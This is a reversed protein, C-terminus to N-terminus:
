DRAQLIITELHCATTLLTHHAVHHKIDLPMCQGTSTSACAHPWLFLCTLPRNPHDGGESEIMMVKVFGTDTATVCWTAQMVKEEASRAGKLIEESLVTMAGRGTSLPSAYALAEPTCGPLRATVTNFTLQLPISPLMDVLCLAIGLGDASLNVQVKWLGVSWKGFTNM